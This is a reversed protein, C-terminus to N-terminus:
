KKEKWRLERKEQWTMGKTKEQWSLYEQPPQWKSRKEKPQLKKAKKVEVKKPKTKKVATRKPKKVPAPIPIDEKLDLDPEGKGELPNLAKFGFEERLKSKAKFWLNEKEMPSVSVLFESIGIPFIKHIENNRRVLGFGNRVAIYIAQEKYIQNEDM